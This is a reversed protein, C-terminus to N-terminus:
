WSSVGHVGCEDGAPGGTEAQRQGAGQGCAADSDDGVAAGGVGEGADVDRADPDHGAVDGVGVVPGGQDGLDLLEAPRSRSTCLALM